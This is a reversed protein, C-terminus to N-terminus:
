PESVRFNDFDASTGAGYSYVGAAGNASTSSTTTCDHVQLGNFYTTLNVGGGSTTVGFRLTFEGTPVGVNEPACEGSTDGPSSTRTAMKSTAALFTTAITAVVESPGGGEGGAGATGGM